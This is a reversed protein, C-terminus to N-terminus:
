FKSQLVKFTLNILELKMLYATSATETDIDLYILVFSLIIIADVFRFLSKFCDLKLIEEPFKSFSAMCPHFLWFMVLKMAMTHAISAVSQPGRLLDHVVPDFTAKSSIIQVRRPLCISKHQGYILAQWISFSFSSFCNFCTHQDKGWGEQWPEFPLKLNWGCMIEVFLM